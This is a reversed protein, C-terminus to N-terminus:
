QLKDDCHCCPDGKRSNLSCCCAAPPFKRCYIPIHSLISFLLMHWRQEFLQNGNLTESTLSRSSCCAWCPTHHWVPFIFVPFWCGFQCSAMTLTVDIKCGLRLQCFKLVSIKESTQTMAASPCILRLDWIPKTDDSTYVTAALECTTMLQSHLERQKGQAFSWSVRMRQKVLLLSCFSSDGCSGWISYNKKKKLPRQSFIAPTETGSKRKAVM